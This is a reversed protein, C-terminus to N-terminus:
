VRDGIERASAALGQKLAHWGLSACKVRMPYHRVGALAELEGLLASSDGQTEGTLLAHVAEFLALAQVRSAGRLREGLMSLSAKSIACGSGQFSIDVIRGQALKLYLRYSDGCLPNDAEVQISADAMARFNRPNNNHDIIIEQYLDRLEANM